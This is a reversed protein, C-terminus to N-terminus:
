YAGLLGENADNTSPIFVKARLSASATAIASGPAWEPSFHKWGDRAGAFFASMPIHLHPL